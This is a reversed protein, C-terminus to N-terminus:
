LKSRIKEAVKLTSKDELGVSYSHNSPATKPADTVQKWVNEMEKSVHKMNEKNEDPRKSEPTGGPGVPTTM